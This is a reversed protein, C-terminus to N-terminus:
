ESLYLKKQREGLALPLLDSDWPLM